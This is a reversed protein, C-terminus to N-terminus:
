CQGGRSETRRVVDDPSDHTSVELIESKEIGTFRHWQKPRIRVAEATPFLYHKKGQVELCVMGSLGVMAEDKKPHMHLSSVAGEDIVLIKASYLETNVLIREAGWKKPVIDM